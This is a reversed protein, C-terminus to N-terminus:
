NNLNSLNTTIQSTSSALDITNLVGWTYTSRASPYSRSYSSMALKQYMPTEGDLVSTNRVDVDSVEDRIRGAMSAPGFYPQWTPKSGVRRMEKLTFTVTQQPESLYDLYNRAFIEAQNYSPLTVTIIFTASKDNYSVKVEKKGASDINPRTITCDSLAVQVNGSDTVEYVILGTEDFSQGMEYSTRVSSTDLTLGDEKPKLSNDTDEKVDVDSDSQRLEPIYLTNASREKFGAVSASDSYKYNFTKFQTVGQDDTVYTGNKIQPTSCNIVVTNVVTDIGEDGLDVDGLTAGSYLASGTSPHLDVENLYTPYTRKNDCFDVVFAKNDAFFVRARVCMACVQLVYWVSTGKKFIIMGVRNSLSEDYQLILNDGSFKVGYEDGSLIRQIWSTPTFTGDSSLTYGRIREADCYATITYKNDSLKVKSVTMYATGIANVALSNRGAVIGPSGEAFLAPAMQALEKKPVKLTIYEFPAEPGGYITYSDICNVNPGLLPYSTKGDASYLVVQFDDQARSTEDNSPAKSSIYMTGVHFEISGKLKTPNGGSYSVSLNKVYGNEDIPAVYPNDSAPTFELQFGDTRCQWRNMSSTIKQMWYANTWRSSNSGSAVASSPQVRTFGITIVKSTKSEITITCEAGMSVLPFSSGSKQFSEQIGTVTGFDFSTGSDPDYLRLKGFTDAM